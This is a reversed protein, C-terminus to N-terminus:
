KRNELSVIDVGASTGLRNAGAEIFELAQEKTKIGGSAKIKIKGGILKKFLVVDEIRAGLNESLSLNPLAFGTSTKIFDAGSKAVINAIKIKEEKTLYATEVIVKLIKGKTAKRVAAIDGKVLDWKGSKLFGLNIVMDVESAGNKIAIKAEEAKAEKANAGLPFGVVACALVGSDKLERFALDIYCPHVCVAKFSYKKAEECLKIIDKETATPKLNTHDIYQSLNIPM